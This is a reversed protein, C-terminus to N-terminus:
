PESNNEQDTNEPDTNEPDTNLSLRLKVLNRNHLVGLNVTWEPKFLTIGIKNLEPKLVVPDVLQSGVSKRSIIELLNAQIQELNLHKVLRAVLEKKFKAIKKRKEILTMEALSTNEMNTRFTVLAIKEKEISEKHQSTLTSDNLCLSIFKNM